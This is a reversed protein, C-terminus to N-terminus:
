KWGNKIGEKFFRKLEPYEGFFNSLRMPKYPTGDENLRFYWYEVKPRYLDFPPGSAEIFNRVVNLSSSLDYGSCRLAPVLLHYLIRHRGDDVYKANQLLFNILRRYEGKRVKKVKVEYEDKMKEVEKEHESLILDTDRIISRIKHNKSEEMYFPIDTKGRESDRIIDVLRQKGLDVPVAFRKKRKVLLKVYLTFPPRLMRKVDGVVKWDIDFNPIRYRQKVKRVMDDFVILPVNYTRTKLQYPRIPIHFHFSRRGTFVGTVAAGFLENLGQWLLKAQYHAVHLYSNDGVEAKIRCVVRNEIYPDSHTAVVAGELWNRHLFELYEDESYVKFRPYSGSLFDGGPEVVYKGNDRPFRIAESGLYELWAVINEDTVRM